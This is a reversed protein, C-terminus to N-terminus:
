DELRLRQHPIVPPGLGTETISFVDWLSVSEDLRRTSRQPSLSSHTLPTPSLPQSSSTCTKMLSPALKRERTYPMSWCRTSIACQPIGSILTRTKGTDRENGSILKWLKQPLDDTKQLFSYELDPFDMVRGIEKFSMTYRRGHVTFTIKGWGEKAHKTDHITVVVLSSLFQCSVDEYLPYAMTHLKPMKLHALM